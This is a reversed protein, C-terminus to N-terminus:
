SFSVVNCVYTGKGLFISFTKGMVESSVKDANSKCMVSLKQEAKAMELLGEFRVKEPKLAPLTDLPSDMTFTTPTFQLNKHNVVALDVKGAKLLQSKFAGHGDTITIFKNGGQVIEVEVNPIGKDNQTVSGKMKAWIVLNLALLGVLLLKNLKKEIILKNLKM